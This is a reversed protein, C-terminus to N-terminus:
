ANLRWAVVEISQSGDELWRVEQVWVPRELYQEEDVLWLLDGAQVWAYGWCQYRIVTWPEAYAAAWWQLTRLASGEVYVAVTEESRVRPGRDRYSVTSGLTPHSDGDYGAGSIRSTGATKDQLLDLGWRLELVNAVEDYGQEEVQGDRVVSPRVARLTGVCDARKANLRVPIMRWGQPGTLVAVPLLPLLAQAVWEAPSMPETVVAGVQWGDLYDRVAALSARDIALTSLSLVAEIVSGAGKAPGTGTVSRLSAQSWSAFYELSPDVVITSAYVLDVVSVLRGQFDAITEVPLSESLTGDFIVVSTATVPYAAVLLLDRAAGAATSEVFFAPTAPITGAGPCGIPGPYTGELGEPRNPWTLDSITAWKLDIVGGAASPFLARDEQIAEEAEVELPEGPAGYRYAVVVGSLVVVRQEWTDGESWMAVEAPQRDLRHGQSHLLPVDLAADVIAVSAARREPSRGLWPARAAIAAGTVGASVRYWRDEQTSEIELPASSYRRWVGAVRISVIWWLPASVVESAAYRRRM